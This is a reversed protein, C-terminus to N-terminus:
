KDKGIFITKGVARGNGFYKRAYTETLIVQNPSLPNGNGEVFPYSFVKFFSSDIYYVGSERYSANNVSVPTVDYAHDLQTAYEVDTGDNLLHARLMKQSRAFGGMNYFDTAVRYIRDADPFQHDYTLQQHVYILIIFASAIGLSLGGLNLLSYLPYKRFNRLAIKIESFSM